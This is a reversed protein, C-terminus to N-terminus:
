WRPPTPSLLVELALPTVQKWSPENHGLHPARLDWHDVGHQWGRSELSLKLDETEPVHDEGTAFVFARGRRLTRAQVFKDRAEERPDQWQPAPRLAPSLIGWAGFVQPKGPEDIMDEIQPHAGMSSGIGVVNSFHTNVGLDRAAAPLLSGRLYRLYNKAGGGRVSYDNARKEDLHDPALIIAPPVKGADILSELALHMDWSGTPGGGFLNQADHAVIVRAGALSRGVLATPRYMRVQRGGIQHVSLEGAHARAGALMVVLACAFTVWFPRRPRAPHLTRWLADPLYLDAACYACALVRPAAHDIKLGAGCDPCAFSIPRAAPPAPPAAAVHLTRAAPVVASLWAPLVIKM